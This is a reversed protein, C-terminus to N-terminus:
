SSAAWRSRVRGRTHTSRSAVPTQGPCSRMTWIAAALMKGSPLTDVHDDSTFRSCGIGGAAVAIWPSASAITADAGVKVCSAGVTALHAAYGGPIRMLVAMDQFRVGRAAEELVLRAIEVAELSEGPASLFRVSGDLKAPPGQVTESFLDRQVRSLSSGLEWEGDVRDFPTGARGALAKRAADRRPAVAPRESWTLWVFQHSAALRTLLIEFGHSEPADGVLVVGAGDATPLAAAASRYITERDILQASALTRRYERAVRALVRVKDGDPARAVFTELVEPAIDAAAIDRLTRLAAPAFGPMQVARELYNPTSADSVAATSANLVIALDVEEPVPLLGLGLSERAAISWAFEHPLEVHIAGPRGSRGPRAIPEILGPASERWVGDCYGCRFLPQPVNIGAQKAQGPLLTVTHDTTNPNRGIACTKYPCRPNM